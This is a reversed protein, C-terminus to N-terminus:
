VFTGILRCIARVEKDNSVSTSSKQELGGVDVEKYASTGQSAKIKVM